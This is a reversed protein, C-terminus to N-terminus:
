FYKDINMLVRERDKMPPHSEYLKDIWTQNRPEVQWRDAFPLSVLSEAVLEEDLSEIRKLASTMLVPSTLEAGIIDAAYEHKKSIEYSIMSVIKAIFKIIVGVYYVFVGFLSFMSWFIGGNSSSDTGVKKSVKSMGRGLFMYVDGLIDFVCVFSLTLMRKLSDLNVIHGVEHGLIAKLENDSIKGDVYADVIGKTLCIRHEKINSYVLANVEPTDVLMLKIPKAVCAKERLESIHELIKKPPNVFPVIGKMPYLTYIYTMTYAIIFGIVLFIPMMWLATLPSSLYFPLALVFTTIFFMKITYVWSNLGRYKREISLLEYFFENWTQKKETKFSLQAKVIQFRKYVDNDLELCTTSKELNDVEKDVLKDKKEINAM